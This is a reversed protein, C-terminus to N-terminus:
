KVGSKLDNLRYLKIYKAFYDRIALKKLKARLQGWVESKRTIKGRIQVLQSQLFYIQDELIRNKEILDLNPEWSLTEGILGRIVNIQGM